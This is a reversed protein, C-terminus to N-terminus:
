IMMLIGFMHIMCAHLGNRQLHFDVGKARLAVRLTMFPTETFFSTVLGM